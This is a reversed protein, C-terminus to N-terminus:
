KPASGASNDEELDVVMEPATEFQMSPVGDDDFGIAGHGAITIRAGNEHTGTIVLQMDTGSWYDQAPAGVVDIHCGYRLNSPAPKGRDDEALHEFRGETVRLHLDHRVLVNGGQEIGTIQADKIEFSSIHAAWPDVIMDSEVCM